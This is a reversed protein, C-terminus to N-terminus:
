TPPQPYCEQVWNLYQSFGLVGRPHEPVIEMCLVAKLACVWLNACRMILLCGLMAVRQFSCPRGCVGVRVGVARGDSGCGKEVFLLSMVAVPGELCLGSPGQNQM